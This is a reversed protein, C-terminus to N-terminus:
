NLVAEQNVEPEEPNTAQTEQVLGLEMAWKKPTFGQTDLCEPNANKSLLFEVNKQKDFAYARHLPTQQGYGALNIEAGKSLLLDLVDSCGHSAALHIPALCWDNLTNIPVKVQRQEYFSLLWAMLQPNPSIAASHLLTNGNEDRFNLDDILVTMLQFLEVKGAIAAEWLFQTFLPKLNKVAMKIKSDTMLEQLLLPFSYAPIESQMFGAIFGNLLATGTDNLHRKMEINQVFQQKKKAIKNLVDFLQTFTRASAQLSRVLGTEASNNNNEQWLFQSNLKEILRSLVKAPEKIRELQSNNNDSSNNNALSQVTKLQAILGESFSKGDARQCLLENVNNKMELLDHAMYKDAFEPTLYQSVAKLEKNKFIIYDAGYVPTNVFECDLELLEQYCLKLFLRVFEKITESDMSGYFEALPKLEDAVVPTASNLQATITGVSNEPNASTKFGFNFPQKQYRQLLLGVKKANPRDVTM